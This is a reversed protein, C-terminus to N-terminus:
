SDVTYEKKNDLIIFLLFQCIIKMKKDHKGANANEEFIAQLFSDLSLCCFSDFTLVSVSDLM